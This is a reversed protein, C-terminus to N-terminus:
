VAETILIGQIYGDIAQPEVEAIWEGHGFTAGEGQDGCEEVGGSDSILPIEVVVAGVEGRIGGIGVGEEGGDSQAGALVSDGEADGVGVPLGRKSGGGDEDGIDGGVDADGAGGGDEDGAGVDERELVGI